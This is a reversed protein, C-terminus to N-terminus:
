NAHSSTACSARSNNPFTSNLPPPFAFASRDQRLFCNGTPQYPAGCRWEGDFNKGAPSTLRFLQRTASANGLKCLLHTQEGARINRPRLDICEVTRQTHSNFAHTRTLRTGSAVPLPSNGDFFILSPHPSPILIPASQALTLDRSHATKETCCRGAINPINAQWKHLGATLGSHISFM